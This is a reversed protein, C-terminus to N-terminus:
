DHERSLSTKIKDWLEAKPEYVPQMLNGAISAIYELEELLTSCRVCTKLHEHNHIKEGILDPMQGQFEDCSLPGSESHPGGPQDGKDQMYLRM